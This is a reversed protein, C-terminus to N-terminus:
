LRALAARTSPPLTVWLDECLEVGLVFDPNNEDCVLIDTGFPVSPNRESLRISSPVSSSAPTFYRREYFESYNPIFTKPILALIKGHYLVAACNYIANEM